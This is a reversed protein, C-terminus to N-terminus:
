GNHSGLLCSVLGFVQLEDDKFGVSAVGIYNDPLYADEELRPRAIAPCLIVMGLTMGVIGSDLDTRETTPELISLFDDTAIVSLWVKSGIILHTANIKKEALVKRINFLEVPTLVSIYKPLVKEMTKKIHILISRREELANSM